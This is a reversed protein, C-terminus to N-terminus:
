PAVAVMLDTVRQTFAVPDPLASGEALLAQGHLLHGFDAIRTDKADAAFFAQMKALLPHEPNIELIRKSSPAAQGSQELLKQLGPTLDGQEGVLCVASKTLRNSLRVEKVHEELTSQLAELLDKHAEEQGKRVEEAEKKEEESGLEVQGQGVSRLPKEDFDGLQGAMIEDVPDTLYLVEYGKDLFAELHPSREVATRSSGTIYYIAEQGDKMRAVYDALSVFAEPDASSQFWLLPKVRDKHDQDTIGEKLVRGYKKWFSLYREADDKQIAALADVTKRIIKKKIQRVRRDQQLIERSVNLSLDPSDVVGRMFRLWEPLLDESREKILVNKVYLQLGWKADRYFLDMPERDPVFLLARYEFTGEARFQIREFPGEWDHGIHKYFEAYEEETVEAPDRVWIAKMSNLMKWETVIEFEGEVAEGEDDKKPEERTSLFQVPYTVFDSYKKVTQRVVWEQTFDQLGNDPDADRLKLTITTGHGAREGDEIEFTGGGGSRWVTAQTEGARRTLVEVETAAMFASYFGVGFQGILSETADADASAEKVRSAFEKTGSHAITGLNQVVEDRSMGVGNDDITLTRAEADAQVKIELAEGEAILSKDTIAEFRLKDLADSANSVLERLFIEKNSYLSHIMLDLLQQAESKFEFTQASV